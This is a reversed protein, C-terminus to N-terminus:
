TRQSAQTRQEFKLGARRFIEIAAVMDSRRVAPNEYKGQPTRLVTAGHEFAGYIMEIPEVPKFAGPGSNSAYIIAVNSLARAVDNLVASNDPDEIDGLRQGMIERYVLLAALSVPLFDFTDQSREM